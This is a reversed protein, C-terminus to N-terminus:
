YEQRRVILNNTKLQFAPFSCYYFRVELYVKPEVRPVTIYDITAELPLVSVSVQHADGDSPITVVEEVSYSLAVPTESVVMNPESLAQTDPTIEEYEETEDPIPPLDTAPAAGFPSLTPASSAGFASAGPPPPPPPALPASGFLAGGQAPQASAGFGSGTSGFAGYQPAGFISGPQQQPLRAQQQQQFIPQQQMQQQLQQMQQM